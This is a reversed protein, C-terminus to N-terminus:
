SGFRAVQFPSIDHRTKGHEALDAMIEGV